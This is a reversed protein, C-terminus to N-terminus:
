NFAPQPQVQTLHAQASKLHLGHKTKYWHHPATILKYLAYWASASMALWYFPVLFVFPIISWQGRKACGIMYYYLYLFNGFVLSFVGMYLIPGPFFQEISEGVVSRLTFYTITIAWMLPNAFLSFTKGGVILLFSLKHFWSFSHLDRLHVIFTQIYGKIWRSRQKFWNGFDSNAEELTLSDMVATLQGRKALRMGLDCDETVNFADWGGIDRLVQTRFHNSTGGLPIPAAISHLGSLVLDFWLSYEATFLRTLLNQHANYFNLKAQICIIHEPVEQFALYAKKLQDREPIDEADYIVCYEGRTTLLGYNCAKPKTKPKSHPVVVVEFYSPLNMNHAHAITEKDDEELLLMVQLKDKPYDLLSMAQTFQPLVEPEKYLPCFVTYTPLESDKLAQVRDNDIQIEPFDRLSRVSLILYYILDAFYMLTIAGITLILMTRWDLIFLLIVLTLIVLGRFQQSSTMTRMATQLEHLSNHPVYKNGKFHFGQGESQVQAASFPIPSPDRLKTKVAHKGIEWSTKLLNVKSNGSLREAFEIEVHAIKYGAHTAQYLLELDFTWPTPHLTVRDFIEKRFVKLGSQVDSEFGLLTKNFLYHYANSLIQRLFNTHKKTRNAIVIDADSRVKAIMEPLSEPPYQLDADIMAILPAQAKQIGQIISHAKGKPGDKLAVTLPYNKALEQLKTLTDDQSHDDIFIMEYLLNAHHMTGDIRRVLTEVNDAENLTPVIISIAPVPSQKM